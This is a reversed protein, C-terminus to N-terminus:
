LQLESRVHNFKPIIGIRNFFEDVFNISNKVAWKACGYGLCKDPLFPNSTNKFIKSVEFKSKLRYELNDTKNKQSDSIWSPEYHMLSNRLRILGDIDQYPSEGKSFQEKGLLSLAIQYKELISYSATRPIDLKWMNGLLRVNDEGLSKLENSCDVSDCFLENITAELFCVTSFVTNTVYAKYKTILESNFEGNYEKELEGSIRCFLAASKIHQVSFYTRIRTEVSMQINLAIREEYTHV